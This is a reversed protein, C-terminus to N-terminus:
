VVSMYPRIAEVFKKTNDRSYLKEATKRAAKKYKHLLAQNYHFNLIAECAAELDDSRANVGCGMEEVMKTLDTERDSVVILVLGAAMYYYAKSPVMCGESGRQYPLIGIDGSALSYPFTKEPQFPLLIVNSTQKRDVFKKALSFKAGEGILLFRIDREGSLAKAVELIFEINHSHGMNGSYVVTTKNLLGYKLAFWNQEKVVPKILRADAWGHICLVNKASAKSGNFTETLRSAMDLGITIVLSAKEYVMRNLLNWAKSVIGERIRGMGVLIDPYIDYVLV